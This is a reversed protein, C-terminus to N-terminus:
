SEQGQGCKGGDQGVLPCVGGQVIQDCHDNFEPCKRLALYTRVGDATRPCPSQGFVCTIQALGHVRRFGDDRPLCPTLRELPPSSARHRCLLKPCAPVIEHACLFLSPCSVRWSIGM